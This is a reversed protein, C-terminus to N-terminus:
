GNNGEKMRAVAMRAVLEEAEALLECDEDHCFDDIRCDPCCTMNPCLSQVISYVEDGFREYLANLVVTLQRNNPIDCNNCDENCFYKAM